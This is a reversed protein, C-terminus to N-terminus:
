FVSQLVQRCRRQISETFRELVTEFGHVESFDAELEEALDPLSEALEALRNMVPRRPIHLEDAFRHWCERNIREPTYQGGVALAMDRSLTGPSLRNLFEIAVIDYFPALEPASNTHPYHIALNKAHGDWNGILCNFMQWDRLRNIALVPNALHRRLLEALTALSPGGERQYKLLSPLGSAQLLDEQHLRKIGGGCHATRDFRRIRLMPVQEALKVFEIDVVDLSISSALRNALYEAICVRSVTEFKLIHTSPYERSSLWYSSGDFIVPQKEQAGALSFRQPQEALASADRGGSNALALIVGEDLVLPDASNPVGDDHAPVMSLAGACDGGIALLLGFVDGPSVGFRRAVRERVAGEPLLGEFYGTAEQPKEGCEIPLSLSVAFGNNAQWQEDYAFYLTGPPDESLRGVQERDCCVMASRGTM